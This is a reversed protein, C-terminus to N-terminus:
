RGDLKPGLVSALGRAVDGPEDGGDEEAQEVAPRTAVAVAARAHLEVRLLDGFLLALGRERAQLLAQALLLEGGLGDGRSGLRGGACQEVVGELAEAEGVGGA